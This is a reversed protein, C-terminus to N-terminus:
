YFKSLQYKLELPKINKIIKKFLKIAFYIGLIFCNFLGIPLYYDNEIDFYGYICEDLLVMFGTISLGLYVGATTAYKSSISNVIM